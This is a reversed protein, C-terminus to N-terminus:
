LTSGQWRIAPDGLVVLGRVDNRERWLGALERADVPAGFDAKRRLEELRVQLEAYRGKLQRVGDGIPRGARVDAELGRLLAQREDAPGWCRGVRGVVALASGGPHALLRRPAAPVAFPEGATEATTGATYSADLVAIMADARAPHPRRGSEIDGVAVAYRRYAEPTECTLRGVAYEVGLALQVDWPIREPPGALLLYYPVKDPDPRGAAVGQAALWSRWTEGSRVELLRFRDEGVQARRHEILPRLAEGVAASEDVHVVLAWGAQGVDAPDIGSPLGLHPQPAVHHIRRLLGLLGPDIEEQWAREAIESDTPATLATWAEELRKRLRSRVEWEEDTERQAATGRLRGAEFDERKQRARRLIEPPLVGVRGAETFHEAAHWVTVGCRLTLAGCSASAPVAVDASGVAPHFDAAVLLHRGDASANGLVAWFVPEEGAATVAFVYVDGPSVDGPSIM